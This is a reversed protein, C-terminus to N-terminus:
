DPIQAAKIEVSDSFASWGHINQARVRFKYTIGGQVDLTQVTALALSIPNFGIIDFWEDSNKDWQLHYSTIECGGKETLDPLVTWEINIQSQSTGLANFPASM